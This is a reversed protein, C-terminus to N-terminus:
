VFGYKELCAKQLSLWIAPNDAVFQHLIDILIAYEQPSLILTIDHHTIQVNGTEGVFIEYDLVKKTVDKEAKVLTMFVAFAKTYSLLIYGKEFSILFKKNKSKFFVPEKKCEFIFNEDIEPSKLVDQLDSFLVSSVPVLGAKITLYSLAVYYGWSLLMDSITKEDEHSLVLDDRKLVSIVSRAIIDAQPVPIPAGGWPEALYKATYKALNEDEIKCKDILFSLMRCLSLFYEHRTEIEQLSPLSWVHQMVELMFLIEWRSLVSKGKVLSLGKEWDSYLSVNKGTLWGPNIGLSKTLLQLSPVGPSSYGREIGALTSRNIAMYVALQEQTFGFIKRLIKLRNM